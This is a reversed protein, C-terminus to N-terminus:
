VTGVRGFLWFESRPISVANSIQMCEDYVRTRVVLIGLPSNFGCHETLSARFVHQRGFLWFESRPISVKRPFGCKGARNATRVVLIGLPSNFRKAQSEALEKEGQGFLWFESRPISVVREVRGAELM